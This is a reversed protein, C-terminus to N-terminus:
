VVYGDMKNSSRGMESTSFKTFHVLRNDPCCEGGKRM